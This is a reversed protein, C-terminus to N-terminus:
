PICYMSFPLSYRGEAMLKFEHPPNVFHANLAGLERKEVVSKELNELRIREDAAHQDICLVIRGTRVIPSLLSVLIFKRGVQGILVSSKIDEPQLCVESSKSNIVHFAKTQNSITLLWNAPPPPSEPSSVLLASKLALSESSCKRSHSHDMPLPSPNDSGEHLMHQPHKDDGTSDNIRKPTLTLGNSLPCIAAAKSGDGYHPELVKELHSEMELGSPSICERQQEVYFYNFPLRQCLQQEGERDKVERAEERAWLSVFAPNQSSPWSCHRKKHRDSCLPSAAIKNETIIRRGTFHPSQTLSVLQNNYEIVRREQENCYQQEPSPTAVIKIGNDNEAQHSAPCQHLWQRSQCAEGGTIAGSGPSPLLLMEDHFRGIMRITDTGSIPSPTLELKNPNNNDAEFPINIQPVTEHGHCPACDDNSCMHHEPSHTQRADMVVVNHGSKEKYTPNSWNPEPSPVQVKEIRITIDASGKSQLNNEKGSISRFHEPSPTEMVRNNVYTVANDVFTDQCSSDCKVGIVNTRRTTNGGVHCVPSNLFLPLSPAAAVQTEIEGFASWTNPVAATTKSNLAIFDNDYAAQWSLPANLSFSDPFENKVHMKVGLYVPPSAQHPSFHQASVPFLGGMSNTLDNRKTLTQASSGNQQCLVLCNNHGHQQGSSLHENLNRVPQKSTIAIPNGLFDNAKFDQQVRTAAGGTGRQSAHQIEQFRNELERDFWTALGHPVAHFHSELLYHKLLTLM